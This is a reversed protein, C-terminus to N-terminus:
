VSVCYLYIYIYIYYMFHNIIDNVDFRVQIAVHLRDIPEDGNWILNLPAIIEMGMKPSKTLHNYNLICSTGTKSDSEKNWHHEKVSNNEKIVSKQRGSGGSSHVTSGLSKSSSSSSASASASSSSPLPSKRPSNSSSPLSFSSSSSSSSGLLSSENDEFYTVFQEGVSTEFPAPFLVRVKVPFSEQSGWILKINSIKIHRPGPPLLSYRVLPPLESSSELAHHSPSLAISETLMGDDTTSMAMSSQPSVNVVNSVDDNSVDVLATFISKINGHSSGIRNYIDNKLQDHEHRHLLRLLFTALVPSHDSITFIEGDNICQYNQIETNMVHPIGTGSVDSGDKSFVDMDRCISEPVLDEALDVMSHYLVRDSYQPVHERVSGGKYFPLRERLNYTSKVWSSQRYDLRHRHLKKRSTPFFNPFPISERYGFFVNQVKKEQNLQDHSEFLTRNLNDELMKVATECPLANGSTDVLSFNLDGCWLIHHFQENLHFGNEALLEGLSIVARQYQSRRNELKGSDFHASVFVITRGFISVVGAVCGRSIANSFPISASAMLHIDQRIRRSVFIALGTFNQTLISGDGRGLVQMPDESQLRVCGELSLLADISDFISEGICEQVGIAYIDYGSPVFPQLLRVARNKEMGAFPDAGGLNWSGVWIKLIEPCYSIGEREPDKMAWIPLPKPVIGKAKLLFLRDKELTKAQSKLSSIELELRRIDSELSEIKDYAKNCEDSKKSFDVELRVIQSEQETVRHNTQICSSEIDESKRLISLFRNTELSDIWEQRDSNNTAFLTIFRGGVTAFSIGYGNGLEKAAPKVTSSEIFILGAFSSADEKEYSYLLNGFLSYFLRVDRYQLYGKKVGLRYAVPAFKTFDSVPIKEETSM